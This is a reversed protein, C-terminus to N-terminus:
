AWPFTDELESLPNRGEINEPPQKGSIIVESMKLM